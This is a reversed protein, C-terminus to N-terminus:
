IKENELEKIQKVANLKTKTVTRCVDRLNTLQEQSLHAISGYVELYSLCEEFKSLTRKNEKLINLQLRKM